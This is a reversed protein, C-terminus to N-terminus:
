SSRTLLKEIKPFRLYIFVKYFAMGKQLRNQVGELAVFKKGREIMQGKLTEYDQHYKLPYCALSSVKRPGEFKDITIELNGM